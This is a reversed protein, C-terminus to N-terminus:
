CVFGRPYVRVTVHLRLACAPHLPQILLQHRVHVCVAGLRECM